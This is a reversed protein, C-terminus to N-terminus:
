GISRARLQLVVSACDESEAERIRIQGGIHRRRIAQGEPILHNNATSATADRCIQAVKPRSGTELFFDRREFFYNGARRVNHMEIPSIDPDNGNHDNCKAPRCQHLFDHM